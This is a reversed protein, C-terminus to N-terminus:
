AASSTVSFRQEYIMRNTLEELQQGEYKWQAGNPEATAHIANRVTDLLAFNTSTIEAETTYDMIIKVIFNYKVSPACVIMSTTTDVNEDTVFMVWAAPRVLKTMMPDAEKGGVALGVRKNTVGFPNSPIAKLKAILDQTLEAIM